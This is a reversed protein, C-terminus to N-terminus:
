IPLKEIEGLRFKVNKYGGVSANARARDVMEETMDVGM